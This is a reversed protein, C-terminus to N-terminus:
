ELGADFANQAVQQWNKGYKARNLFWVDQMDAGPGFVSIDHFLRTTDAWHLIEACGMQYAAVKVDKLDLPLHLVTHISESDTNECVVIRKM